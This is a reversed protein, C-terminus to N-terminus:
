HTPNQTAKHKRPSLLPPHIIKSWGGRGEARGERQEVTWHRSVMLEEM